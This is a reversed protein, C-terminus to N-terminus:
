LMLLIQRQIKDKMVTEKSQIPRLIVGELRTLVRVEQNIERKDELSTLELVLEQPQLLEMRLKLTQGLYVKLAPQAVVEMLQLILDVVLYDKMM